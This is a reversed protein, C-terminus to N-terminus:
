RFPSSCSRALAATLADTGCPADLHVHQSRSDRNCRRRPQCPSGCCTPRAKSRRLACLTTSTKRSVPIPFGSRRPRTGTAPTKATPAGICCRLAASASSTSWRRLTAKASSRDRLQRAHPRIGDRDPLGRPHPPIERLRDRRRPGDSREADRRAQQARRDQVSHRAVVFQELTSVMKEMLPYVDRSTTEISALQAQMSAIETRQAVVQETLHANYKTISQTDELTRRYKNLMETTGDDMKDIQEQAAKAAKDGAAQQALLNDLPKTDAAYVPVTLMLAMLVVARSRQIRDPTM